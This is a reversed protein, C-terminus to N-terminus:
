QIDHQTRWETWFTAVVDAIPAKPKLLQDKIATIDVQQSVLHRLPQSLTQDGMVIAGLIKKSGIQLRLHNIDFSQQCAIADPLQRWTESDGRAIGDLDVDTGFGVMGIITTTLGALRTVNFPVGKTYTLSEGLMNLGAIRGQLRAPGWLSDIIYQGSYPDFVQAVDGAAFIDPTDTKMYQDVLIGRETKIGISKALQTRPRIGIAYAVINCKIQNGAKTRVGIVKGRKGIIEQEETNYHIKVGDEQLRHEVIRSETEDLVNSWYRDGRLFYHTKVGSTQLGEVIELATIGGGIVVAARARKSLKRINQADEYTDLKVIGQLNKASPLSPLAANSGTAILLRDYSLKRGDHLMITHAQADISTARANIIQLHLNQIDKKTFPFLQSKPVEQTIYYALGPRSYFGAAEDGILIIEAASSRDRIAEAASIGAAGTGVIIFRAM